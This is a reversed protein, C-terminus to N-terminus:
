ASRATPIMAIIRSKTRINLFRCYIAFCFRFGIEGKKTLLADSPASFARILIVAAKNGSLQM